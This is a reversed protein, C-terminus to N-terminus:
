LTYFYFELRESPHTYVQPFFLILFYSLKLTSLNWALGQSLSLPPLSGLSSHSTRFSAPHVGLGLSFYPFLTLVVMRKKRPTRGPPVKSFPSWYILPKKGTDQASNAKTHNTKVNCFHSDCLRCQLWHLSTTGLQTFVKPEGHYYPCWQPHSAYDYWCAFADDTLVAHDFSCCSQLSLSM